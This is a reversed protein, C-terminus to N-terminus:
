QAVALVPDGHFRLQGLARAERDLAHDRDRLLASCDRLEPPKRSWVEYTGAWRRAFLPQGMRKARKTMPKSNIPSIALEARETRGSTLPELVSRGRAQDAM